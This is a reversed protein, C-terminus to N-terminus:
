LYILKNLVLETRVLSDNITAVKGMVACCRNRTRKTEAGVTERNVRAPLKEIGFTSYANEEKKFNKYSMTSAKIVIYTLIRIRQSCLIYTKKSSCNKGM